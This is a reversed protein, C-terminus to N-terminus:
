LPRQFKGFTVFLARGGFLRKKTWFLVIMRIEMAM